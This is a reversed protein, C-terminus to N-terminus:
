AVGPAGACGVGAIYLSPTGSVTCGVRLAKFPGTTLLILHLHDEQDIASVTLLCAERGSGIHTSYNQAVGLLVARLQCAM